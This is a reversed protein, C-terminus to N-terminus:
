EDDKETPITYENYTKGKDATKGKKGGIILRIGILICFVPLILMPMLNIFDSLFERVQRDFYSSLNYQFSDTFLGKLLLWVSFVVLLSGILLHREKSFWGPAKLKSDFLQDPQRKLEDLPMNMRNLTDFFSYFWIVPLVCVLESIYTLTMLAIVGVFLSMLAVGKRMLGHYMQGAGPILAWFVTFFKNKTRPPIPASVVPIRYPVAPQVPPPVPPSYPQQNISDM